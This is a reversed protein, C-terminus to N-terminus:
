SQRRANCAFKCKSSVSWSPGAVREHGVRAVAPRQEDPLDPAAALVDAPLFLEAFEAGAAAAPQPEVGALRRVDDFPAVAVPAVDERRERGRPQLLPGVRERRRAELDRQGVPPAEGAAGRVHEVVRDVRPERDQAREARPLRLGGGGLLGLLGGRGRRRVRHRVRAARGHRGRHGARGRRPRRRRRGARQARPADDAEGTASPAPTRRRAGPRAPSM